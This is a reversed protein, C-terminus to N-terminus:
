DSDPLQVPRPFRRRQKWVFYGLSILLLWPLGSVLTPRMGDVWWTTALIAVLLVAGTISAYPYLPLRV